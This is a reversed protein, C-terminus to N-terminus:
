ANPSKMIEFAGHYRSGRAQAHVPVAAVPTLEIYMNVVHYIALPNKIVHVDLQNM